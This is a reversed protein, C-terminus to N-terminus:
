RAAQSNAPASLNASATIQTSARADIRPEVTILFALTGVGFCLLFFTTWLNQRTAEKKDDPQNVCPEM